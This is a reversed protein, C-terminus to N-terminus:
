VTVRREIKQQCMALGERKPHGPNKDHQIDRRVQRKAVRRGFLLFQMSCDFLFKPIKQRRSACNKTKSRSTTTSIWAPLLTKPAEIQRLSDCTACSSVIAMKSALLPQLRSAPTPSFHRQSKPIREQMWRQALNRNTAFSVAIPTLIRAQSYLFKYSKLQPM